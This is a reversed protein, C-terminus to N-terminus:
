WLIVIGGSLGGSGNLSQDNSTGCAGQRYFFATDDWTIPASLSAGSVRPTIGEVMMAFLGKPNIKAYIALMQLSSGNYINGGSSVGSKGGHANITVGNYIATTDSAAGSGGNLVTTSASGSGITYSLSGSVVTYEHACTGGPVSPTGQITNDQQSAPGNGGAGGGFAFVIFKTVGAPVVWTGSANDIKHNLYEEKSAATTQVSADGFTIQPINALNRSNDIVTTGNIQIAM